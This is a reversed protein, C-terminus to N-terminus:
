IAYTNLHLSILFASYGRLKGGTGFMIWCVQQMETDLMQGSFSWRPGIRHNTEQEELISSNEERTVLAKYVFGIYGAVNGALGTGKEQEWQYM